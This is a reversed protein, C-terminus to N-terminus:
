QATAGFASLANAVRRLYVDAAVENCQAVYNDSPGREM